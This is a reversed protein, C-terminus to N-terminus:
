QGLREGARIQFGHLFDTALMRKKGELQVEDMVVASDAGCGVVLEGGAVSMEGPALRAGGVPHLRHVVLKKGRVTTWAGPWPQFGRWRNYTTVASRGFDIRGDDRTLIPALTAQTHDQAIARLTGAQVGELTEVLLPAGVAALSRLVEMSTEEPAIPIARALLMDGTDLGEDLRMTTVGTVTEGNAVAWQVPAAGRYKPLLSGHVNINGLPALALMWPPIIRGYAIVVIADPAIAELQSRFAENNRIKEPQVVPLGRSLAVRKVPPFKVEMGRGAARDPQTVVLAVEHGAALVAELAPVAFEPTGCFVM